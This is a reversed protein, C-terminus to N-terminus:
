SAVTKNLHMIGVIACNFSEAVGVLPKLVQRVKEPKFTDKGDM